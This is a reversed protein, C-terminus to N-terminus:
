VAEIFFLGKKYSEYYLSSKVQHPGEKREYGVGMSLGQLCLVCEKNCKKKNKTKKSIQSDIIDSDRGMIPQYSVSRRPM